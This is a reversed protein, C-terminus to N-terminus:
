AAVQREANDQTASSGGVNTMGALAAMVLGRSRIVQERGYDKHPMPLMEDISAKLVLMRKTVLDASAFAGREAEFDSRRNQADLAAADCLEEYRVRESHLNQRVSDCRADVWRSVADQLQKWAPHKVIAYRTSIIESRIAAREKQLHKSEAISGFSETIAQMLLSELEYISGTM